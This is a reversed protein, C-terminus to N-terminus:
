SRKPKIMGKVWGEGPHTLSSMNEVGNNYWKRGASTTWKISRGKVWGEPCETCFKSDVGNTFWQRSKNTDAWRKASARKVDDSQTKGQMPNPRSYFSERLKDRVSQTPNSMGEGGDTLNVLIGTGLDKRGWWRILRREIAYAGLESLMTEVLVIRNRPPPKVRRYKSFARNGKGKGIYYPTGDNRLYAYVYYICNSSM